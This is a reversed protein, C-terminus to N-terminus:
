FEAAAVPVWASPMAFRAVIPSPAPSSVKAQGWHLGWAAALPLGVWHLAFEIFYVALLLSGSGAAPTSIPSGAVSYYLVILGLNITANLAEFIYAAAVSRGFRGTSGSGKYAMVAAALPAAAVNFLLAVILGGVASVFGGEPTSIGGLLYFEAFFVGITAVDVALVGLGAFGVERPTLGAAAPQQPSPSEIAAPGCLALTLVVAGLM